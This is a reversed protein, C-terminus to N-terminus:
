RYDKVCSEDVKGHAPQFEYRRIGLSLWSFAQLTGGDRRRTRAVFTNGSRLPLMSGPRGRRHLLIRSGRTQRHFDTRELFPEKVIRFDETQNVVFCLNPVQTTRWTQLDVDNKKLHTKGQTTDRIDPFHRSSPLLLLLLLLLWCCYYCRRNWKDFHSVVSAVDHKKISTPQSLRRKLRHM